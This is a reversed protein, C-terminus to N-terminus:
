QRACPKMMKLLLFQKRISRKKLDRFNDLQVVEGSAMRSKTIKEIKDILDKANIKKKQM